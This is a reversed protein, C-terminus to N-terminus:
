RAEPMTVTCNNVSGGEDPRPSERSTTATFAPQKPVPPIVTDTGLFLTLESTSPRDAAFEQVCLLGVHICRMVEPESYSSGLLPYVLELAQGDNWLKWAHSLLNLSDENNYFSSNKKGSVIELLLVGLSFVDSKESFRGEMAYEPSMYGYTGVVRRTNDQNQNGGFIRALGFDSIKPNLEKDLLINSAKLDRHIIKLRSDRHLYLLGRAIGEIVHFRQAWDLKPEDSDFIYSDLSKNPMYEYVLMKEEEHVCYGLLRVLNKHQVRSIVLVENRFEELGQGSSSSLRKVAIEQGGSLRGKYVPGFGGGGLKNAASFNDTAFALVKFDFIHLEQGEEQQDADAATFKGYVEPRSLCNKETSRKLTSQEAENSQRTRKALWRRWMFFVFVSIIITGLLVVTTVIIPKVKKKQGIESAPLRIFLDVGNVSFNQLDILDGSWFMCGVGDDHAYAVCSCNRLCEGECTDARDFSLWAISDPPKVSEMKVFVNNEKKNKKVTATSSTSTSANTTACSLPNMRVCGGTWNGRKWDERFRPEFGSLCSCPPLTSSPNCFGWPGCKGYFDCPNSPVTWATFWEKKEESWQLEEVNGTSNLSFMSKNSMSDNFPSYTYYVSGGEDVITSLPKFNSSDPPTEGLFSRGNWPGSRWYIDGTIESRVIIQYPKIPPIGVSFNGVSPDWPSTWSRMFRSHNSHVDIGLKMYPLHVSGIHDFSQWLTEGTTESLLLLNGTDALTAKLNSPFTPTSWIVTNAGGDIIVLSGNRISIMSGSSSSHKIPTDRNAVWVIPVPKLSVSTYWIGVYRNNNSRGSGGRGPSFFGLAFRGGGSVLTEGDKLGREPTITDRAAVACFLLSLSFVSSFLFHAKIIQAAAMSSCTGGGISSSVTEEIPPRSEPSIILLANQVESDASLPQLLRHNTGTKRVFEQGTGENHPSHRDHHPRLESTPMLASQQDTLEQLLPPARVQPLACTFLTAAPCLYVFSRCPCTFLASMLSRRAMTITTGTTPWSQLKPNNEKKVSFSIFLLLPGM